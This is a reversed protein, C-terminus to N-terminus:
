ILTITIYHELVLNADCWVPVPLASQLNWSRCCNFQVAPAFGTMTFHECVHGRSCASTETCWCLIRFSKKIHWVVPGASALNKASGSPKQCVWRLHLKACAKGKETRRDESYKHPVPLKNENQNPARSMGSLGCTECFCVNYCISARLARVFDVWFLGVPIFPLLVTIFFFSTKWWM